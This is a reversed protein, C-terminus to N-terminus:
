IRDGYHNKSHIEAHVQQAFYESYCCHSYNQLDTPTTHGTLYNIAFNFDAEVISNVQGPHSFGDSYYRAFIKCCRKMSVVQSRDQM